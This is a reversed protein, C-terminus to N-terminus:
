LAYISTLQTSNLYTNYFRIDAFCLDPSGQSRPSFICNFIDNVSFSLNNIYSYSTSFNAASFSNNSFKYDHILSFATNSATSTNWNYGFNLCIFTWNNNLGIKFYMNGTSDVLNKPGIFFGSNLQNTNVTWYCNGNSANFLQTGNLVNQSSNVNSNNIYMRFTMACGQSNYKLQPFTLPYSLRLGNYLGFLLNDTNVSNYSLDYVNTIQDKYITPNNGQENADTFLYYKTITYSSSTSSTPPVFKNLSQFTSFTTLM